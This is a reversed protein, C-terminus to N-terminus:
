VYMTQKHAHMAATSTDKLRIGGGGWPEDDHSWLQKDVVLELRHCMKGPPHQRVLGEIGENIVHKGKDDFHWHHVSNATESITLACRPM